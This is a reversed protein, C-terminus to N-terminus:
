AIVGDIGARHAEERERETLWQVSSRWLATAATRRREMDSHRQPMGNRFLWGSAKPFAGGTALEAVHAGVVEPMQAFRWAQSALWRQVPAAGRLIESRVFGPDVCNCALPIRAGRRSLEEALLLTALKAQAYAPVLHYPRQYALDDLRLRAVHRLGSTMTIIRPACAAALRPALSINLLFHGAYNTAFHMELGDISHQRRAFVAGANNILADIRPYASGIRRAASRVSEFSSLDASWTDIRGASPNAARIRAAAAQGSEQTRCLLAVVGVRRSLEIATSLGIGASAGTILVIRDLSEALQMSM